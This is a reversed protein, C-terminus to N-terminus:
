HEASPHPPGPEQGGAMEEREKYGRCQGTGCSTKGALM